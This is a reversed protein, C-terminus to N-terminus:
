YDRRKLNNLREKEVSIQLDLLEMEKEHKQNSQDLEQALRKKTFDAVELRM